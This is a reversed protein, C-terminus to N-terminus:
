GGRVRPTRSAIKRPSAASCTAEQDSASHLVLRCAAGCAPGTKSVGGEIYTVVLCEEEARCCVRKCRTKGDNGVVSTTCMQPTSTGSCTDQCEQGHVVLPVLLVLPVLPVSFRLM